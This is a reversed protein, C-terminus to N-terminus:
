IWYQFRDYSNPVYDQIRFTRGDKTWKRYCLIKKKRREKCSPCRDRQYYWELETSPINYGSFYQLMNDHRCRLVNARHKEYGECSCTPAHQDDLASCQPCNVRAHKYQGIIEDMKENTPLKSNFDPDFLEEFYQIIRKCECNLDKVESESNSDLMNEPVHWEEPKFLLQGKQCKPHEDKAANAM